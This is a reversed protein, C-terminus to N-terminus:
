LVRTIARFSKRGIQVVAVPAHPLVTRDQGTQAAVHVPLHRPLLMGGLERLMHAHLSFKLGLSRLPKGGCEFESKEHTYPEGGLQLRLHGCDLM